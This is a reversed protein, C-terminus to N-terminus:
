DNNIILWVMSAVIILLTLVCFREKETKEQRREREREKERERGMMADRHRSAKSVCEFCIMRKRRSRFKSGCNCRLRRRGWRHRNRSHSRSRDKPTTGRICRPNGLMGRRPGQLAILDCDIAISTHIYGVLQAKGHRVCLDGDARLIEFMRSLSIGVVTGDRSGYTSKWV